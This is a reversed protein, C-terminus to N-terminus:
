ILKFPAENAFWASNACYLVLVLSEEPVFSGENRATPPIKPTNVERPVLELFGLNTLFSLFTTVNCNCHDGSSTLLVKTARTGSALFTKPFLRLLILKALRAVFNSFNEYKGKLLM